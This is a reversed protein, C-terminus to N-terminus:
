MNPPLTTPMGPTSGGGAGVAAAGGALPDQRPRPPAYQLLVATFFPADVARTAVVPDAGIHVLGVQVARPLRNAYDPSRSDWEEVWEDTAPDLYRLEFSRVNMALPYVVGDEAPEEDVRASERHYLTYGRSGDNSRETWLTIESQDSERT